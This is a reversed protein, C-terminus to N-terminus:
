QGCETAQLFLFFSIVSSLFNSFCKCLGRCGVLPLKKRIKNYRNLIKISHLYVTLRRSQSGPIDTKRQAQGLLNRFRESMTDKTKWKAKTGANYFRCNEVDEAEFCTFARAKLLPKSFLACFSAFCASYFMTM